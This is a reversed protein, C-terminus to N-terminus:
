RTTTASTVKILPGHGLISATIGTPTENALLTTLAYLLLLAITDLGAILVGYAAVLARRRRDRRRSSRGPAASRM